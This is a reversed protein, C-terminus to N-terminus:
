SRCGGERSVWSYGRMRIELSNDEGLTIYNWFHDTRLLSQHTTVIQFQVRDRDTVISLGFCISRLSPATFGKSGLKARCSYYSSLLQKKWRARELLISLFVPVEFGSKGSFALEPLVLLDLNQPNAKSLVADARNLNNDVDGV